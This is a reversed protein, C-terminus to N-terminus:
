ENSADRLRTNAMVVVAVVVGVLLLVGGVAETRLAHAVEAAEPWSSRTLLSRIPRRIEAVAASM